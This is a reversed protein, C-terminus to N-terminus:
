SGFLSILRVEIGDFAPALFCYGGTCLFGTPRRGVFVNLNHRGGFAVNVTASTWTDRGDVAVAATEGQLALTLWPAQQYELTLLSLTQKDAAVYEITQWELTAAVSQVDDLGIEIDGGVSWRDTIGKIRDIEHDLVARLRPGTDDRGPRLRGELTWQRFEFVEDRAHNDSRSHNLAIGDELGPSWELAGQRGVEDDPNSLHTGRNLLTWSQTKVLTPPENYAGLFREYDKFEFSAGISYAAATLAGYWARGDESLLLPDAQRTAGTLHATLFGRSLDIEGSLFEDRIRAADEPTPDGPDITNVRLYSGAVSVGDWPDLVGRAGRITDLREGAGPSTPEGSQPVLLPRGSLATGSLMGHHARVRVGDIDRDLSVSREIRGVSATRTEYARLLVGRGWTEYYNGGLIEVNDDLYQLSRQDIVEEGPGESPEIAHFRASLTWRRWGADVRFLDEFSEDGNERTLGYELRNSGSLLLDGLEQAAAPLPTLLCASVAISAALGIM